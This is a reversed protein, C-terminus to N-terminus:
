ARSIVPSFQVVSPDLRIAEPMRRGPYAFLVCVIRPGLFLHRGYSDIFNFTVYPAQIIPVFKTM